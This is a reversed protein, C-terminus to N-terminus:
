NAWSSSSSISKRGWGGMISSNGTPLVVALKSSCKRIEAKYNMYTYFQKVCNESSWIYNLISLLHELSLKCWRTNTFREQPFLILASLTYVSRWILSSCLNISKEEVVLIHSTKEWVKHIHLLCFDLNMSTHQPNLKYNRSERFLLM